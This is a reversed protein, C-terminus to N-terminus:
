FPFLVSGYLMSSILFCSALHLFGPMSPWTILHNWKCSLDWISLRIPLSPPNTTALPPPPSLVSVPVASPDLTESQPYLLHKSILSRHHICAVTITSFVVSAYAKLSTKLIEHIKDWKKFFWRAVFYYPAPCFLIFCKPNPIWVQNWTQAGGLRTIGDSWSKFQQSETEEDLLIGVEHHPQLQCATM